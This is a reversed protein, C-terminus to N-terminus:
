FRSGLPGRDDKAVYSDLGSGVKDFQEYLIRSDKFTLGGKSRMESELRGAKNLQERLSSAQTESIKRMALEHSIRSELEARRVMVDDLMIVAGGSVVFRNGSILPSFTITRIDDKLQNGVYDLSMALPLANVYTFRAPKAVTQERAIRDLESRLISARSQSLSGSALGISITNELQLRRADLTGIYIDPSASNLGIVNGFQDVVIRTNDTDTSGDTLPSLPTTRLAKSVNINLSDLERALNVAQDMSMQRGTSQAAMWDATVHNLDEQLSAATSASLENRMMGDGILKDLEYRRANLVSVLADSSVQNASTTTLTETTTTVGDRTISRRTRQTADAINTNQTLPTKAQANESLWDSASAASASGLCIAVIPLTKGLELRINMSNTGTNLHPHTYVPYRMRTPSCIAAQSIGANNSHFGNWDM